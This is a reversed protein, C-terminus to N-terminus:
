PRDDGGLVGLQRDLVARRRDDDRVVAAALEVSSRRREVRQRLHDVRDGSPDLDIEVAADAAAGVDGLRERQACARHEGAARRDEAERRCALVAHPVDELEQAVLQRQRQAQEAAGGRLLERARM